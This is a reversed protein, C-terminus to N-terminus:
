LIGSKAYGVLDDIYRKKTFDCPADYAALMGTEDPTRKSENKMRMKMKLLTMLIKDIFGLKSFDFGGRLYFFRINKQQELTFNLNKLENTTSERNPTAGSAFVIIKKHKLKNLNKLILNIGNIGGIYLGGGYIVTDYLSFMDTRFKNSEFLDASLEYTIWEAYKKVFGTKSKYIVVTKM